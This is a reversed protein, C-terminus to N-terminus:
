RNNILLSRNKCYSFDIILYLMNSQANNSNRYHSHVHFCHKRYIHFVHHQGAGYYQVSVYTYKHYMFMSKNRFQTDTVCINVSMKFSFINLLLHVTVQYPVSLTCKEQLHLLLKDNVSAFLLITTNMKIAVKM